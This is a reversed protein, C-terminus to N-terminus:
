EHHTQKASVSSVNVDNECIHQGELTLIQHIWLPNLHIFIM